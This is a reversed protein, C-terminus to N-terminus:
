QLSIYNWGKKLRLPVSQMDKAGKIELKVSVQDIQDNDKAKVGVRVADVSEANLGAPFTKTWVGIIAGKFISYDFILVEKGASTEKKSVVDGVAPGINFIGKEKADLISFSPRSDEQSQANPIFISAIITIILLANYFSKRM